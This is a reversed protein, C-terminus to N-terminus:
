VAFKTDKTYGTYEATAIKPETLLVVNVRFSQLGIQNETQLFLGQLSQAKKFTFYFIILQQRTRLIVRLESRFECLRSDPKISKLSAFVRLHAAQNM